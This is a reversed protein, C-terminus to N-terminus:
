TIVPVVRASMSSLIFVCGVHMNHKAPQNDPQLSCLTHLSCVVCLLFICVKLYFVGCQVVSYQKTCHPQCHVIVVLRCLM